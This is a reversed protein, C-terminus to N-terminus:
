GPQIGFQSVEADTIHDTIVRRVDKGISNLDIDDAFSCRLLWTLNQSRPFWSSFPTQLSFEDVLVGVNDDECLIQVITDTHLHIQSRRHVFSCGPLEFDIEPMM